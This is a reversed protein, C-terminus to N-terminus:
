GAVDYETGPTSRSGRQAHWIPMLLCWSVVLLAISACIESSKRRWVGAVFVLGILAFWCYVVGARGFQSCLGVAVCFLLITGLLAKLGFQFQTPQPPM